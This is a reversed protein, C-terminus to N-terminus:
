TNQDYFNKQLEKDKIPLHPQPKKFYKFRTFFLLRCRKGKFVDRPCAHADETARVVTSGGELTCAQIASVTPESCTFAEIVDLLSAPTKGM